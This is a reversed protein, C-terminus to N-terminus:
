VQGAAKMQRYRSEEIWGLKTQFGHPYTKVGAKILMWVPGQIIEMKHVDDHQYTATSGPGMITQKVAGWNPAMASSDRYSGKLVRVSFDFPSDYLYPEIDSHVIKDLYLRFWRTSLLRYRESYVVGVDNVVLSILFIKRILWLLM